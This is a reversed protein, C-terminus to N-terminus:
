PKGEGPQPSASWYIRPNIVYESPSYKGETRANECGYGIGGFANNYEVIRTWEDEPYKGAIIRDAIEKSVTTM